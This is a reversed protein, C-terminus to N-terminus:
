IMLSTHKSDAQAVMYVEPLRRRRIIEQVAGFKRQLLFVIANPLLLCLRRQPTRRRQRQCLAHLDVLVLLHNHKGQRLQHLVASIM